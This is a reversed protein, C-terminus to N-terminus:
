LAIMGLIRRKQWMKFHEGEFQKHKVSRDIKEVTTGNSGM